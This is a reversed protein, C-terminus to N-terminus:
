FARSNSIKRTRGSVYPDMFRSALLGGFGVKIRSLTGTGNEYGTIFDVRLVKLINELGVYLEAYNNNNNVYLANAGTVLYFKLKRFLPIKNTILGNLHYDLHGEVYVPATTSHAYYSALQFSGQAQNLLGTLNGIFHQYDQVQVAKRNLFGGTIFQYDLTGVLHLNKSGFARIRWKDFNVDSGLLGKIGKQYTFSFVPYKSGLSVKNNPLQIYRQGPQFRISAGLSLAQHRMFNESMLEIPYNPTLNAVDGDHKTYITSNELPIRDEYLLGVDLGMGNEWSKNYNLEGFYNEYIKMYNNGYYITSMTNILPDIPNKKNFQSVRKGVSLLWSRSLFKEDRKRRKVNWEVNLSPNFHKNYFGYRLEPEIVFDSEGKNKKFYPIFTSTIGEVTNYSTTLMFPEIGWQFDHISTDAYHTRHIGPPIILSLPKLGGQWKRLSDRMSRTNASDRRTFFISDKVKYNRLEEANLPQPRISDWWSRQKNTVSTDYEIIVNDFFKKSLKPDINYNSYVNLFSGFMGIGLVNFTIDVVQSGPQWVDGSVPIQIQKISVTDVLELQATRTLFLDYSHISWDEDIINITGTFLPEFKRRPTVSISHIMKGNEFFNGLFKFRYFSIAGDAIPSVFGRPNLKELFVKVNNTYLSIVVPFTFGFNDSGSVRSNLVEMKMKDPQKRYVKSISESLYLIGKGTTDLAMDVFADTPIKKGFFRQPMKRVSLVDKNYRDVISANIQNNYFTRKKIAERIIAYAPDEGNSKVIVESLTLQVPKLQFNVTIMEDVSVSMKAAAYGVSKCEITYNGPKLRMIFDGDSNASVGITTGKVFISAYPVPRGDLNTVNGKIGQATVSFFPCLGIFLVLLFKM